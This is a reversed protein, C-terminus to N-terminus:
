KGGEYISCDLEEVRSIFKEADTGMKESFLTLQGEMAELSNVFECLNDHVNGETIGYCCVERLQSVLFSLKEEIYSNLLLVQEKYDEFEEDVIYLDSSM